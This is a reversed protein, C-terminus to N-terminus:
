HWQTSSLAFTIIMIVFNIGLSNNRCPDHKIIPESLGKENALTVLPMEDARKNYFLTVNLTLQLSNPIMLDLYNFLAYNQSVACHCNAGFM